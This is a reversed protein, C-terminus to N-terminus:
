PSCICAHGSLVAFMTLVKTQIGLTCGFVQRVWLVINDVTDNDPISSTENVWGKKLQKQNKNVVEQVDRMETYGVTLATVKPSKSTDHLPGGSVKAEEAKTLKDM